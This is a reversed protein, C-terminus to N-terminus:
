NRMFQTKYEESLDPRIHPNHLIQDKLYGQLGGLKNKGAIRELARIYAFLSRVDTKKKVDPWFAFCTCYFRKLRDSILQANPAYLCAKTLANQSSLVYTLARSLEQRMGPKNVMYEIYELLVDVDFFNIDVCVRGALLLFNESAGQRGDVYDWAREFIFSRVWADAAINRRMIRTHRKGNAIYSLAYCNVYGVHFVYTYGGEAELGFSDGAKELLETYDAVTVEVDTWAPDATVWEFAILSGALKEDIKKGGSIASAVKKTRATIVYQAQYLQSMRDSEDRTLAEGGAIKEHLLFEYIVSSDNHGAEATKEIYPLLRSFRPSDGGALMRWIVSCVEDRYPGRTGTLKWLHGLVEFFTDDFDRKDLKSNLFTSHFRIEMDPSLSRGIDLLPALGTQDNPKFNYSLYATNLYVAGNDGIPRGQRLMLDLNGAVASHYFIVGDRDILSSVLREFDREGLENYLESSSLGLMDLMSLALRGFGGPQATILRLTDIDPSIFMLQNLALMSYETNQFVGAHKLIHRATKSGLERPLSRLYLVLEGFVPNDSFFAGPLNQETFRTAYAYMFLGRYPEELANLENTGTIELPAARAKLKKVHAAGYFETDDTNLVKSPMEPLWFYNVASESFQAFDAYIVRPYGNFLFKIKRAGNFGKMPNFYYIQDLLNPLFGSEDRFETCLDIEHKSFSNKNFSAAIFDLASSDMAFAKQLRRFHWTAPLDSDSGGYLHYLEFERARADLIRQTDEYMQNYNEYGLRYFRATEHDLAYEKYTNLLCKLVYRKGVDLEGRAEYLAPRFLAARREVLVEPLNLWSLGGLHNFLGSGDPAVSLIFRLLFDNASLKLYDRSVCSAIGKSIAAFMALNAIGDADEENIAADGQKAAAKALSAYIDQGRDFARDASDLTLMRRSALSQEYFRAANAPEILMASIFAYQMFIYRYEALSRDDDGIIVYATVFDRNIDMILGDMINGTFKKTKIYTELYVELNRFGDNFFRFCNSLKSDFLTPNFNDPLSFIPM